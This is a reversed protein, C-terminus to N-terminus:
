TINPGSDTRKKSWQAQFCSPRDAGIYIAGVEFSHGFSYELLRATVSAKKEKKTYCCRKLITSTAGFQTVFM